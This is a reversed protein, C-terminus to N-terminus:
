YRWTSGSRPQTQRSLLRFTVPRHPQPPPPPYCTWECRSFLLTLGKDRGEAVQCGKRAPQCHSNTLETTILRQRSPSVANVTAFYLSRKDVRRSAVGLLLLLYPLLLCVAAIILTNPPWTHCRSKSRPPPPPWCHVASCFPLQEVAKHSRRVSVCVFVARAM